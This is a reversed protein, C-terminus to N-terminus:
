AEGTRRANCDGVLCGVGPVGQTGAAVDRVYGRTWLWGGSRATTGGFKSAKELVVASLGADHAALATMMGGGGSGVVVVDYEEDWAVPEGEM